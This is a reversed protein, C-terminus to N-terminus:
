SNLERQPALRANQLKERKAQPIGSVMDELLWYGIRDVALVIFDDTTPLTRGWDFDKLESAVRHVMTRIPNSLATSRSMTPIAYSAQNTRSSRPSTRLSAPMRDFLQRPELGAPSYSSLLSGTLM